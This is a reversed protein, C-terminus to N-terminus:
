RIRNLGGEDFGVAVIKHYFLSSADEARQEVYRSVIGTVASLVEEWGMDEIGEVYLDTYKQEPVFDEACAWDDDHKDYRRAGTLYLMYLSGTTEFMGIHIAAIDAPAPQDIARLWQRIKEELSPKAFLPLSLCRFKRVLYQLQDLAGTVAHPASLEKRKFLAYMAYDTLFLHRCSEKGACYAEWEEAIADPMYGEEDQWDSETGPQPAYYLAIFFSEHHRRVRGKADTEPVFTYSAEFEIGGRTLTYNTVSHRTVHTADPIYRAIFAEIKRTTRKPAVFSLWFTVTWIIPLFFIFPLLSCSVVLAWDTEERLGLEQYLLAAFLLVSGVGLPVSVYLTTKKWWNWLSSYLFRENRAARKFYEGITLHDASTYSPNTQIM